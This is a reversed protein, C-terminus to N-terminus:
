GSKGVGEAAKLPKMYFSVPLMCMMCVIGHIPEVVLQSIM